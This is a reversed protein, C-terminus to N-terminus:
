EIEFRDFFDSQIDYLNDIAIKTGDQLTISKEIENMRKIKTEITIYKGGSKRKDKQFYTMTVFPQNECANLILLKENLITIQNDSLEMKEDTTRGSEKIVDCFGTLAAFPSFQAARDYNSMRKRNKSIPHPLNIIDEYNDKKEM